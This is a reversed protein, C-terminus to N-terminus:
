TKVQEVRTHENTPDYSTSEEEDGAGSVSVGQIVRAILTKKDPFLLNLVAYLVVTLCFGYLWNIAFLHQLGAPIHVTKPSVKNALGPMMPVITVILVILSRWNCKGYIGNPDYLAPVDYRRRKVIWYDCMLFGALPAMFIAYASMFNLFTQGSALILWPCFAWGGILFCIVSGRRINIFRPLMSTVDNSFSLSNASVNLCIQALCWCISCFFAAARGRSSSHWNDIILLPNWLAEGYIQVSASASIIGCAAITVKFIPIFPLQWIQAGPSKAFRSFDPINVALTSYSATVSTMSALWLWVRTSGSVQAPVNFFNSGGTQTTIWVVMGIAVPPMVIVKALFLPQLRHIPIFLFPLQLLHFLLYSVMGQTTIGASGPLHNALNAYSPWIAKIMQTVALGGASSNVGFWFLALIARSVVAIYSLWYGYAARAAIPFPIHIDSGIAGNLVIPVANCMSAVFCILMADSASLGSAVVSSGQSWTSVTVLDSFWYAVFTRATWTRREPPVPDQDANSWVNPPAVSSNQKPLTWGSIRRRSKLGEKVSSSWGAVSPRSM